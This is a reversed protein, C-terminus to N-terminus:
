LVVLLLLLAGGSGDMPAVALAKAHKIIPSYTAADGALSESLIRCAHAVKERAKNVL